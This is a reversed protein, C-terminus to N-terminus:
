CGLMNGARLEFIQPIKRGQEDEAAQWKPMSALAKIVLADVTEIGSSETLKIDTVSGEKDIVFEVLCLEFSFNQLESLSTQIYVDVAKKDSDDKRSFSAELYPVVHYSFKIERSESSAKLDQNYYRISLEVKNGVKTQALLALQKETLEESMGSAVEEGGDSSIALDVSEYSMIWSSPYGPNIDKLTHASSLVKKTITKPYTNTIQVYISDHSQASVTLTLALFLLVLVVSKM